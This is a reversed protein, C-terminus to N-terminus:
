NELIALNRKADQNGPWIELARHFHDLAVPLNGRQYAVFGLNNETKSIEPDHVMMRRFSALDYRALDSESITRGQEAAIWAAHEPEDKFADAAEWLMDQYYLLPDLQGALTKQFAQEAKELEKAAMWIAGMKRLVVDPRAGEALAKEYYGLAEESRGQRQNADGQFLFVSQRMRSTLDKRQVDALFKAAGATDGSEFLAIALNLLVEPTDSRIELSRRYQAIALRYNHKRFENDGYHRYAMAEAQAGLNSFNQLWRPNTLAIGGFTLLAAWVVLLGYTVVVQSRTRPAQHAPRGPQPEAVKTSSSSSM